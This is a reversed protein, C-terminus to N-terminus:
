NVARLDIQETIILPLIYDVLSASVQTPFHEQLM